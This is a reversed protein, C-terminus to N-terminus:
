VARWILRSRNESVNLCRDFCRLIFRNIGCQLIHLIADGSWQCIFSSYIRFYLCLIYFVQKMEDWECPHIHTVEKVKSSQYKYTHTHTWRLPLSHLVKGLLCRM